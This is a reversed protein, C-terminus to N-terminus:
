YGDKWRQLRVPCQMNKCDGTGALSRQSDSACQGGVIRPSNACRFRKDAQDSWAIGRATDLFQLLLSWTENFSLVNNLSIGLSSADASGKLKVALNVVIIALAALILDLVLNLWRQACFLLYYPVQSKDLKLIM